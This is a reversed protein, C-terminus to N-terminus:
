LVRTRSTPIDEDDLTFEAATSTGDLKKVTITVGSVAFESFTQQMFYLIQAPTGEIGSAAYSEPLQYTSWIDEVAEPTLASVTVSGSESHYTGSPLTRAEFEENTPINELLGSNYIIGLKADQVSSELSLVSIDSVLESRVNELQGSTAVNSLDLNTIDTTVDVLAVNAVVDTSPNFYDGSPLTRAEFESVTPVNEILGSNSAIGTIATQVSSELALDSTDVFGEVRLSYSRTYTGDTFVYHAVGESTPRDASNYALTYWHKGAGDTYLSSIVGSISTFSGGDLSVTGTITAGSAPWTFSLPKTDNQSRTVTASVTSTLANQLLPTVDEARLVATGVTNDVPINYAVNAPDPVIMTGSAGENKYLVGQRVDTPAPYNAVSEGDYTLFKATGDSYNQQWYNGSDQTFQVLPTPGGFPSMGSPGSVCKTLNVPLIPYNSNISSNLYISYSDSRHNIEPYNNGYLTGYCNIRQNRFYSYICSSYAGAVYNGYFNCEDVTGFLNIAYRNILTDHGKFNGSVTMNLCNILYIIDSNNFPQIYEENTFILNGSVANSLYIIPVSLNNNEINLINGTFNINRVNNNCSIAHTTGSNIINGVLSLDSNANTYRIGNNTGLCYLDGSIDVGVGNTPVYIGLTNHNAYIDGNITLLPTTVTSASFKSPIIAPTNYINGSGSFLNGNVTCNNSFSELYLAANVASGTGFGGYLNGNITTEGNASSHLGYCGNAGNYSGSFIDGSTQCQIRLAYLASNQTTLGGYLNGYYNLNVDGDIGVNEFRIGRNYSSGPFYGGGYSDGSITVNINSASSYLSVGNLYYGYKSGSISGIIEINADQQPYEIHLCSGYRSSNSVTNDIIYEGSCYVNKASRIILGCAYSSFQYLNSNGGTSKAVKHNGISIVNGDVPDIRGGYAGTISNDIGGGICAGNIYHNGGATTYYFGYSNTVNGGYSNGNLTFDGSNSNVYIAPGTEGGYANGTITLSGDSNSYFGYNNANSGGTVNGVISTNISSNSLRVGNAFYANNNGSGGYINGIIYLSGTSGETRLADAFGYYPGGGYFDGNFYFNGSSSNIYVAHTFQNTTPTYQYQNGGRLDGYHYLNLYSNDVTLGLSRDSGGTINGSIVIESFGYTNNIGISRNTGTSWNSDNHIYVDGILNLNGSNSTFNFATVSSTTCTSFSIDGYINIPTSLINNSILVSELGNCFVNGSITYGDNFIFSGGNTLGVLDGNNSFSLVAIDQDISIDYNNAYVDDSSAPLTGGDWTATDSWLGDTVAYRNAM